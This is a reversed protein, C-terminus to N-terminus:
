RERPAVPRESADPAPTGDIGALLAAEPWSRDAEFRQAAPVAGSRAARTIFEGEGRTHVVHYYCGPQVPADAERVMVGPDYYGCALRQLTAKDGLEVPAQRALAGPKDGTGVFDRDTRGGLVRQVRKLIEPVGATAQVRGTPTYQPWDYRFLEVSGDNLFTITVKSGAGVVPVGDIERTFVIRNAVVASYASTGDVAVGGETRASTAEPELREASGLTIADALFRSIFDRGAAELQALSLAREAKLDHARNAAVQNVFEAASGDRFVALKWDTGTILIRGAETERSMKQLSLPQDAKTLSAILSSVTTEPTRASRRTLVPLDRGSLGTTLSRQAHDDSRPSTGGYVAAAGGIGLAATLLIRISAGQYLMGGEGLELQELM